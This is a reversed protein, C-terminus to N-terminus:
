CLHNAPMRALTWCRTASRQNGVAIIGRACMRTVDNTPPMWALDKEETTAEDILGGPTFESTFRKWTELAGKFFAVLLPKLHPLEPALKKIAEMAEPTEWQLGDMAGTEPVVAPGVLFTPDEIIRKIHQQVKYHLPGLDLMNVKKHEPARIVRMYPHTIAQAYLALVALETKTATCHLAKWLNEEMHSFRMTKKKSKVFELFDIFHSLHQLLAAAGTCHSQFRNNSTDPFTFDCGVNITWWIRFTDHHGKKDDAHNLISGALQTAKVGGRSSMQFAREQAPTAIDSEVSLDKLIAANDRNALLVPPEVNSEKWWAMM